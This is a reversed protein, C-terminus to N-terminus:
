SEAGRSEIVKVALFLDGGAEHEHDLCCFLAVVDKLVDEEGSRRSQAFGGEGVDDGGGDAGREM